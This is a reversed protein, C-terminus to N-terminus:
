VQGAGGDVFLEVGTVFSSERSALFLAAAAVEEPRGARGLPVGATARERVAAPAQALAPTDIPGPSLTNVRIGRGALDLALSRALSRVAAKTAAYVGYRMSASSGTASGLLVVSAGDRLLPLARQVTFFAGRFNLDSTADFQEETFEAFGGSPGGGANVVLVDVAECGAAAVAAYLRDLDAVRSADGPVAVAGAGLERVASALEAPRRGTIFVRAGERVFRHATALGIGASGGTIVAVMGDLQGGSPPAAADATRGPGTERRM